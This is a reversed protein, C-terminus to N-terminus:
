GWIAVIPVSSDRLHQHSPYEHAVAGEGDRQGREPAVRWEPSIVRRGASYPCAGAAHGIVQGDLVNWVIARECFYIM